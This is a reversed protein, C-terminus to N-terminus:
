LPNDIVEELANLVDSRSMTRINLTVAAGKAVMHAINDHQEGFLPIGIM